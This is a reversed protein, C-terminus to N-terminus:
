GLRARRASRRRRAALRRGLAAPRRGKARDPARGHRGASDGRGGRTRAPGAPRGQVRGQGLGARGARCRIPCGAGHGHPPGLGCRRDRQPDRVPRRRADVVPWAHGRRGDPDASGARLDPQRHHDRGGLLRRGQPVVDRGLVGAGGRRVAVVAARPLAAGRPRVPRLLASQARHVGRAAPTRGAAAFYAGVLGAQWDHAHVLDVPFGTLGPVKAVLAAARCLLGFRVHNDPWDHGSADLYPGAGRDYLAKCELLWGRLGQTRFPVLRAPGAGLLDGIPVADGDLDVKDDVGRYAPLLLRANVGHEALAGPLAGVVDALGGTKILPFAESAVMLVRMAPLTGAFAAGCHFATRCATRGDHSCSTLRGHCSFRPDAEISAETGAAITAIVRGTLSIRYSRLSATRLVRASTSAPPRPLRRRSRVLVRALGATGNPPLNRM